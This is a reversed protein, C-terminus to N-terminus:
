LSLPRQVFTPDFIRIDHLSRGKVRVFPAVHWSLSMRSGPHGVLTVTLNGFLWAKGATVHRAQLLRCMKHAKAFCGDQIVAFPISDSASCADFLDAIRGIPVASVAALISRVHAADTEAM